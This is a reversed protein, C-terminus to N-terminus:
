KLLEKIKEIAAKIKGYGNDVTGFLKTQKFVDTAIDVNRVFDPADVVASIATTNVDFPGEKGFMKSISDVPLTYGAQISVVIKKSLLNDKITVYDNQNHVIGNLISNRGLKQNVYKNMLDKYEKKNGNDMFPVNRYPDRIKFDALTKEGTTMDSVRSSYIVSGRESTRVALSQVNVEQYLVMGMFLIFLLSFFLTTFVITIEITLYGDQNEKLQQKLQEKKHKLSAWLRGPLKQKNQMFVKEQNHSPFASVM